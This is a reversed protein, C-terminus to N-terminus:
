QAQIDSKYKQRRKKQQISFIQFSFQEEEASAVVVVQVLVIYKAKM